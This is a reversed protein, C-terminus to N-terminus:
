DALGCRRSVGREDDMWQRPNMRAIDDGVALLGEQELEYGCRDMAKDWRIVDLDGGDQNHMVILNWDGSRPPFEAAFSKVLYGFQAASGKVIKAAENLRTSDTLVGRRRRSLIGAWDDRLGQIVRQANHVDGPAKALEEWRRRVDSDTPAAPTFPLPTM